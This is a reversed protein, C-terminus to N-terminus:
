DFRPTIKDNFGIEKGVVGFELSLFDQRIGVPSIFKTSYPQLHEHQVLDLVPWFLAGRELRNKKIGASM